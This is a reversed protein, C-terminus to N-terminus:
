ICDIRRKFLILALGEGEIVLSALSLLIPGQLHMEMGRRLMGKVALSVIELKVNNMCILATCIEGDDADEEIELSSSFLSVPENVLHNLVISVTAFRPLRFLKLNLFEDVAEIGLLHEM